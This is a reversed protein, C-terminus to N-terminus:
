NDREGWGGFAPKVGGHVQEAHEDTRSGFGESADRNKAARPVFMDELDQQPTLMGLSQHSSGLPHTKKIKELDWQAEAGRQKLDLLHDYAGMRGSELAALTTFIFRYGMEGLVEYTIGSGDWGLNSSYNIALVVNPHTKKVEKAITELPGRKTNGLEVWVADMGTDAYARGRKIAEELSGGVAGAADTRAILYFSPDLKDRTYVAARYKGVADEIPVVQKGAIHGYKKPDVQDEIHAAAARTLIYERVTREINGVGGYGTDADAVVPINPVDSLGRELMSVTARIAHLMETQTMMGTDPYGLKNSASYGSFYVVPFGIKAVIGADHPDGVGPTYIFPRAELLNRFLQGNSVSVLGQQVM